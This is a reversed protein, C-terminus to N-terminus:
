IQWYILLLCHTIDQPLLFFVTLDRILEAVTIQGEEHTNRIAVGLTKTEEFFSSFKVVM